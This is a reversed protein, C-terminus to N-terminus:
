LYRTLGRREIEEVVRRVDQARERHCILVADHTDVVILDKIGVLAVLRQTGFVEYGTADVPVVPAKRGRIRPLDALATWSGIDSWGFEGEVVIVRPVKEVVGYDISVSPVRAYARALARGRRAAPVRMAGRLPIVVEPLYRDMLDLAVSARWTFIGANWLYEGSAVFRRAKALAPKEVFARARWARGGLRAGVRIYGYGTEPGQPRVGITVTASEREAWALAERVVARFEQPDAIGHDAPLSVFTADPRRRAIELAAMALCPATNRGMPEILINGAPLRPVQRRVARAYDRTTVILIQRRPVVGRLRDVTAQLLSRSGLVRLLQKPLDRRSRPWFRTGSGGAM